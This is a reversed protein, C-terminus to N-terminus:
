QISAGANRERPGAGHARPPLLRKVTNIMIRAGCVLMGRSHMSLIGTVTCM